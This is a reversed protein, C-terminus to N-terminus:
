KEGDDDKNEEEISQVDLDIDGEFEYLEFLSIYEDIIAQTNKLEGLIVSNLNQLEQTELQKQLSAKRTELQILFQVIRKRRFTQAGGGREGHHQRRRGHERREGRQLGEFQRILRDRRM